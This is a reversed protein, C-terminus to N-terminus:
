RAYLYLLKQRYRCTKTSKTAKGSLSRWKTGRPGWIPDRSDAFPKNLVLFNISSFDFTDLVSFYKRHPVVFYFNISRQHAKGAINLLVVRSTAFGILVIAILIECIFTDHDVIHPLAKNSCLLAVVIKVRNSLDTSLCRGKKNHSVVIAGGRHGCFSCM